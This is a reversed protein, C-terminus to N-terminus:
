VDCEREHIFRQLPHPIKKIDAQEVKESLDVSNYTHWYLVPGADCGHDRCFDKVAAFTKATYTPELAIQETLEMEECADICEDTPSGYCEGLYDCLITPTDFSVEPVKGSHKRMLKWTDKMLTTVTGENCTPVFLYHSFTVRVGIITSKLGALKAGLALGAMTGNSGLPCFIYKPEPLLKAEVQQKLEFAANVFGLTGVPSSGGAYLFYARPHLIRQFVMFNFIAGTLSKTYIMEAGYRQFLRLNKQVYSTVPQKFLVLSCKLGLEHCFIATALGHNTGIGGMTFVQDKGMKKVEALIFELKRIKNGGYVPSSFDDRKIWLDQIGIHDLKHVPTPLDALEIRPLNEGLDSYEKFLPITTNNM